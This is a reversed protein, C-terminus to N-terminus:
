QQVKPSAERLCVVEGSLLEGYNALMIENVRVAGKESLCSGLLIIRIKYSVFSLVQCLGSRHDALLPGASGESQIGRKLSPRDGQAARLARAWEERRPFCGASPRAGWLPLDSSSGRGGAEAWGEPFCLSFSRPRDSLSQGAPATPFCACALSTSGPSRPWAQELAVEERQRHQAAQFHM